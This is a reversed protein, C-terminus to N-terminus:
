QRMGLTATLHRSFDLMKKLAVDHRAAFEKLEFVATGKTIKLPFTVSVVVDTPTLSTKAGVIGQPTITYGQTTFSVFNELCTGLNKEVYRDVQTERRRSTLALHQWTTRVPLTSGTRFM